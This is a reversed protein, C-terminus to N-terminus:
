RKGAMPAGTIKIKGQYDQRASLTAADKSGDNNHHVVTVDANLPLGNNTQMPDVPLHVEGLKKGGHMMIVTEYDAPFDKAGAQLAAAEGTALASTDTDATPAAADAPAAATETVAPTAEVAPAAAPEESKSLHVEALSGKAAETEPLAPAAPTAEAPTAAPEEPTHLHVEALSAKSDVSEQAAPPPGDVVHNVEDDTARTHTSAAIVTGTFAGFSAGLMATSLVNGM